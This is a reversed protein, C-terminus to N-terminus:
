HIRLLMVHNRGPSTLCFMFRLYIAAAECCCCCFLSFGSEFISDPESIRRNIKCRSGLVSLSLSLSLSRALSVSLSLSLSLTHTHGTCRLQKIWFLRLWKTGQSEGRMSTRLSGREKKTECRMRLILFFSKGQDEEDKGEIRTTSTLSTV